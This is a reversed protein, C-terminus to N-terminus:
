FSKLTCLWVWNMTSYLYSLKPYHFCILTLPFVLFAILFSVIFGSAELNYKFYSKLLILFFSDQLDTCYFLLELFTDNTINLSAKDLIFTYCFETLIWQYIKKKKHTHVCKKRFFWNFISFFTSLFCYKENKIFFFVM